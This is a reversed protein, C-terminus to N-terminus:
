VRDLRFSEGPVDFLNVFSFNFGEHEKIDAQGWAIPITTFLEQDNRM